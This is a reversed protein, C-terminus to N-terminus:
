ENAQTIGKGVSHQLDAKQPPSVLWKENLILKRIYDGTQFVRAQRQHVGDACKHKSKNAVKTAKKHRDILKGIGNPIAM